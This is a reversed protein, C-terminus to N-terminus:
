RPLLRELLGRYISTLQDLEAVGVCENAQHITANVPGFEVVQAGTPAIFRGDSTGGSTSREAELGTVAAIAACTAAVLEGAHTLFPQGSLVWRLDYRFDGRDLIEAVRRQITTADLETSFRLNFQAALRDPIVNEAGTGMNLNAIQFSTPPFHANGQDWIEACLVALQEVCAHLPNKARHPYAVHGQRGHVTLYGSLSGRRGIKITDGLQRQCSPEGVLCYDIRESRAALTEIVKVTGDVAPGEEDSTILFALSGPPEPRGDLFDAVATVMAAIAGKMDCAGRGYLQGDRVEPVFPDSHWQDLPGPPVVDTHGALCVLPGTEGRRAWLNTVDGFPMPEIRFGLAALREALLAQCGEDRPTVSPRRILDMALDLTASM